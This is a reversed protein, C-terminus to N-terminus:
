VRHNGFPQSALRSESKGAPIGIEPRGSIRQTVVFLAGGVVIM